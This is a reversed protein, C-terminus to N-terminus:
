FRYTTRGGFTRPAATSVTLINGVTFLNANVLYRHGEVNQVYGQISWRGSSPGFTVEVNTQWTNGQREQALYEFGVYRSSRYQSDVTGVIKYDGIRVTQEANLNLTWKPSNFAPKGACDVTRLTPTIPNISQACGTLVPAVGLPAQYTFSSYNTHLYQLDSGVVTDPTILWRGEVELGKNTSRGINQTFQGQQGALDVGLHNIQQDRYQWIFAELNLQVRNNFFRNKSGVTYATIYEPQYTEYGSSLSFGGTRYGTEYSAYLLSNRALDFEAAARYTTKAKPLRADVDVDGRSIIAGTGPLPRVGGAPPTPLPQQAITPVLSFLPANPCAAVTCVITLRQSSGEFSRHDDTYRIGGVLRLRDTLHATLRGFVAASRTTQDFAQYVALAQQNISYTGRNTEHYYLGGLQYDLIGVRDGLFRAEASYQKDREGLDATFGPIATRNDQQDERFSPLLVLKGVGTDWNMEGTLGGGNFNQFPYDAIPAFSRGAPGARQSSRFNQADAAYLGSSVPLGSPTVIYAGTGANYRYADAYSSGVGVGGLREYDASLRFTLGEAFRHYVQLRGSRSRDDSSGDSLYGDHGNVQGSLRVATDNGIPVNVAGENRYTGYNGGSAAFYGSFVGLKPTEPIVNIAGGTANRGYLTGQPGKLVEIRQLDYLFGGTNAPRGIYVGDYNFAIAPDAYPTPTFNGIGRIFFGGPTPTVAPVLFGIDTAQTINNKILDAGGIAAVAVAAKQLNETRRQATVVIEQLAGPKAADSGEPAASGAALVADLTAGSAPIGNSSGVSPASATAATSAADTSQAHASSAIVVLAAISVSVRLTERRSTSIM